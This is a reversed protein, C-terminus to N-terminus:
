ILNLQTQLKGGLIRNFVDLNNKIPDELYKGKRGKQYHTVVHSGDSRRGEHQYAAYEKNYGVVSEGDGIPDVFGSNQLLGIDHPVEFQSLRLIETAVEAVGVNSAMGMGKALRDVGNMLDRIDFKIGVM